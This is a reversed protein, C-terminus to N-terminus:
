KTKLLAPTPEPPSTHSFVTASQCHTSPTFRHPTIWPTRRNVGMISAAALLSAAQRPWMTLVALMAPRSLGGLMPTYLTVLCATTERLSVRYWSRDSTVVWTP